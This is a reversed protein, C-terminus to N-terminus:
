KTYELGKSGEKPKVGALPINVFFTTGKKEISKFSINGGFQEIVAKVIYLGLGTGDTEKERVNDARFLKTFINKQQYKPIGMGTDTVVILVQDGQQKIDVTITGKDPTYKVSNSLLNQFVIRMLKPDLQIDPIKNDFNKIIKLKKNKLQPMLENLVSNCLDVINTPVSEIAITGLEIRSVNLLANVLDVMRQNGKYIENLYDKQDKNLKGADGALLMETYWNITSLPTRLQHSALSVFESKAKDINLEQTIDRFVEVTGILQDNLIIPTVTLAVPFKEGNKKIYYYVGKIKKKTKLSIRMPRQDITIVKESKDEMKLYNVLKKGLCNNNVLELMEIAPNNVFLVVGDNDTALVGDGISELLTEYKIKEQAAIRKEEEVDELINLVAAQQDQLIKQKNSIERTQEKVKKDVEAHSKKISETMKDFAQSLQGIEDNKKTGVKYDLNGAEIIKIGENLNIIPKIIFSSVLYIIILLILLVVFIRIVSFMLMEKTASLAESQDIKVVLGIEAEVIYRTAAIVPVHRYDLTFFVAENKQLAEEIPLNPHEETHQESTEEAFLRDTFFVTEGEKNKYALLIEGTEGLGTREHIIINFYDLEVRAVLVGGAHPTAIAISDKQTSESFYAPKIYTKDRANIFYADNSKDLGISTKNTSSIIIGKSNIVFVEYFGPSINKITELEALSLEAHTAAIELKEKQEVLITQINKEILQVVSELRKISETKLLNINFFHSYITAASLIIVVSSIIPWTIKTRIKM